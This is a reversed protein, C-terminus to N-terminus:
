EVLAIAISTTGGLSSGPVQKCWTPGVDLDVTFSFFSDGVARFYDDDDTPAPSVTAYLIGIDNQQGRCQAVYVGADLGSTIDTATDGIEIHALQM